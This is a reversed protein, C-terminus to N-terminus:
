IKYKEILEELQEQLCTGGNYFMSVFNMVGDETVTGHNVDSEEGHDIHELIQYFTETKEVFLGRGEPDCLLDSINSKVKNSDLEEAFENEEYPINNESFFRRAYEALTEEGDRPFRKIKGTHLETYSM